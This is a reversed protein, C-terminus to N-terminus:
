GLLATIISKFAEIFANIRAVLINEDSHWNFLKTADGICVRDVICLTSKLGAESEVQSYCTAASEYISYVMGDYICINQALPPLIYKGKETVTMNETGYDSVSCLYLQSVSKRGYSTNVALCVEGNLKTFCAGNAKAPIEVALKETLKYNNKDVTFGRLMGNSEENFIGVWLKNDYYTVFSATCGCDVTYDYDVKVSLSKATLAKEITKLSIISIQKDSSKAIFIVKGDTALGGVHNKDPLVINKIYDGTERDIIYIVSNHTKHKEEVLLKELNSGYDKNEELEKIYKEAACYTSIFIYDETVCLGQPTMTSCNNGAVDTNQLGPIACYEDSILSLDNYFLKATFFKSNYRYDTTTKQNEAASVTCVAVSFVLLMAMFLSIIKKM